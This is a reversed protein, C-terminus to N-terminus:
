EPRLAAGPTPPAALRRRLEDLVVRVASQDDPDCDNWRASRWHYYISALLDAANAAAVDAQVRRAIASLEGIPRPDGDPGGILACFAEVQRWSADASPIEHPDNM